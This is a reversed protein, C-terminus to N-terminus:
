RAILIMGYAIVDYDAKSLSKFSPNVNKIITNYLGYTIKRFLAFIYIMNEMSYTM